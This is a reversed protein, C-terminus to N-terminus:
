FFASTTVTPGASTRAYHCAQFPYGSSFRYMPWNTNRKPLEAASRCGAQRVGYLHIRLEIDSLRIHDPWRDANIEVHHSCRHSFCADRDTCFAPDADERLLTHANQTLNNARDDGRRVGGVPPTGM